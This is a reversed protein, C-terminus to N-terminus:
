VQLEPENQDGLVNLFLFICGEFKGSDKIMRCNKKNKRYPMGPVHITLCVSSIRSSHSHM